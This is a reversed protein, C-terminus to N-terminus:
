KASTHLIERRISLRLASSRREIAMSHSPFSFPGRRDPPM